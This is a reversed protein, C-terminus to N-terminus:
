PPTKGPYDIRFAGPRKTPRLHRLYFLAAQAGRFGPPALNWCTSPDSSAEWCSLGCVERLLDCDNGPWRGCDGIALTANRDALLASLANCKGVGPALVDLTRGSRVLTVGQDAYTAAIRTVCDWADQLRVFPYPSLTLQCARCDWKGLRKCHLDNRIESAIQRLLGNPRGPRPTSGNSLKAVQGGNYYGVLVSDWHTKPLLRQLDTRVSKGRGTVILVPIHSSLLRSLHAIVHESPGTYREASDCLTGDYDLALAEFLTSRLTAAFAEFSRRWYRDLQAIRLSAFPTRSKREIAIATLRSSNAHRKDSTSTSRLRYIKRGFLPVRPNGPDMRVAEGRCQAILISAVLATLLSAPTSHGFGIFSTPIPVPLLNLTRRALEADENTHLALVASTTGRKALWNHRGHAFNRYDAIQVCGLAAEAFRSEIDIAAHETTAGYLIILNERAWLPALQTRLQELVPEVLSRRQIRLESLKKPLSKRDGSLAEYTRILLTATAVLSNTALFGDRGSPSPFSIFDVYKYARCARRLPSETRTSLVILRLPEAAVVERFAAIIDPNSGGASLFLVASDRLTQLRSVVKLPTVAEASVAAFHRHLSAAMHAASLSGGSGVTVLPIGNLPSFADFLGRLDFAMAAEYTEPLFQIDQRYPRGM